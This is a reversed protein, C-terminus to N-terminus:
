SALEEVCSASDDFAAREGTAVTGAGASPVPWTVM